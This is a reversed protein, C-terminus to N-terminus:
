TAGVVGESLLQELLVTCDTQIRGDLDGSKHYTSQAMIKQNEDLLFYKDPWAQYTQEFDGEWNDVLVPFPIQNNETFVRARELRDALDVHPDPHDTRGIPWLKTHAESIYILLVKIFGSQEIKEAL